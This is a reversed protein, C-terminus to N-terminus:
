TENEHENSNNQMESSRLKKNSDDRCQFDKDKGEFRSEESSDSESDSSNM